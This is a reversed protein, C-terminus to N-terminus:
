SLVSVRLLHGRRAPASVAAVVAAASGATVGGTVSGPEVFLSSWTLLGYRFPSNM